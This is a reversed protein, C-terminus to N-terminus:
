PPEISIKVPPHAGGLVKLSIAGGRAILLRDEDSPLWISEVEVTGDAYATMRVDLDHVRDEEGEKARLRLNARPHSIAKM